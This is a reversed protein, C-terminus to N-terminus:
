LNPGSSEFRKELDLLYAKIELGSSFGCLGTTSVVRHCPFIVPVPNSGLARGVARAAKPMGLSAAVEGYTKTSGYPIASIAEMVRRQFDSLAIDLEPKGFSIDGRLALKIYDSAQLNRERDRVIVSSPILRSFYALSDEDGRFGIGTMALGKDTSAIFIIIDEFATEWCFLTKSKKGAM